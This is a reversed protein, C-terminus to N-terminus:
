WIWRVLVVAGVVWVAVGSLVLAIRVADWARDQWHWPDGGEARPGARLAGRSRRAETMLRELRRRSAPPATPVGAPLRLAALRAAPHPFAREFASVAAEDAAEDLFGWRGAEVLNGTRRHVAALRRRLELNGPDGQVLTSLRQAAVHTHGRGLDEEVRAIVRAYRDM